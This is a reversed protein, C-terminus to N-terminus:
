NEDSTHVIMGSTHFFSRGDADYEAIEFHTAVDKTTLAHNEDLYFIISYAGGRPTPGEAREHTVLGNPVPAPVGM